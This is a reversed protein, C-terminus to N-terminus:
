KKEQQLNMRSEAERYKKFENYDRIYDAAEYPRNCLVTLVSGSSQYTQQAWISPPILLGMNPRDLIYTVTELGDDCYVEVSGTRCTLFQTCAKHAHQGRIAGVAARVVFVRAIAFPVQVLGEMVVLDGNNQSHYPLEIPNVSSVSFLTKNKEKM